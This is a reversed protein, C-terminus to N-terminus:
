ALAICRLDKIIPVVAANRSRMRLKIQYQTFQKGSLDKQYSYDVFDFENKSGSYNVATLEDWSQDGPNTEDGTLLKVYVDIDTESSNYAAFDIRLSTCENAVTILKTIYNAGNFDQKPSEGIIYNSDDNFFFQKGFTGDFDTVRNGTTVISMRDQDIVPSLNDSTSSLTFQLQGSQAGVMQREENIASAIVRPTNYYNHENLAVPSFASDRKYSRQTPVSGSAPTSFASTGISSGSTSKFTADIATGPLERYGILPMMSHYAINKSGYVNAGGFTTNTTALTRTLSSLDIQYSDLTIYELQNHIKNIETLPIGNVVYHEAQWGSDKKFGSSPATGEVLGITTITYQNNAETSIGTLPNYSYVCDGIKVYAPNSNSPLKGDIPNTFTVTTSSTVSSTNITDPAITITTGSKNTVRCNSAFISGASTVVDGIEIGTDDTVVISSSGTAIPNTTGDVTRDITNYKFDTYSGSLTIASGAVGNYDADLNAYKESSVGKLQVYSASDYMGHNKHYVKMRGSNVTLEIPDRRLKNYFLNGSTDVNMTISPTENIDFKARYIKFKMDQMEATTWTSANQSKFLVGAYPQKSIREGTLDDKGMESLWVKYEVSSTLLAFCYEKRELLYVPTEFVFTTATLADDSINVNSPDLNVTGLITPSPYGNVMERIQMTVPLATDKTNFFVDIKSIFCGGSEEILFSQALPDYWGGARSQTSSTTITRKDSVTEHVVEANRVLLVDSQKTLITGNASYAGEASSDADGPVLSNTPSDTLRVISEGTKWRPNSDDTPDPIFISARLNGKDDAILHKKTVTATAGSTVGAIVDGELLYGGRNAGGLKQMTAINLNLFTSTTSYATATIENGTYPDISYPKNLKAIGGQPNGLNCKFKRNVNGTVEIPEGNQFAVSGATMSIEIIKPTTYASIDKGDLFPYVRINPKLRYGTISFNRSRKFHAYKTDVVRDGLVKRDVRPTVYARVGDRTQNATTTTTTTTKWRIYPHQARREKKRTSSTSTSTWQNEWSNWETPGFGTNPDIGLEYAVAAYDGDVETLSEPLRNEEIWDDSAPFVNMLGVWSVVAFPNVNELVCAYQQEVLLEDTYNLMLLDGKMYNTPETDFVLTSNTSYHQPRLEGMSTDMSCKYNPERPEGINHSSFNDVLFGNKLRNNGSGDAIFLNKTDTELLSLQTYYEINQIRNELGGIDKMTYRRQYHRRIKVDNLDRIYPPMDISLVKMANALADSPAEPFLSPIGEKSIFKGNKDLYLEDRRALYYEVDGDTTGSPLLYKGTQRFATNAFEGSATTLTTGSTLASMTYPTTVEGNGTLKSTADIRWDILDSLYCKEGDFEYSPIDDYDADYFSEVSAFVGDNNETKFHDFIVVLKSTVSIDSDTSVKVLKSYNFAQDRQGDDLTYRDKINPLGHSDILNISREASSAYGFLTENAIFNTTSLYVFYLTNGSQKIIRGKSGSTRGVIVEGVQFSTTASSSQLTIKPVVNISAASGTPDNYIAHIKSVKTTGLSLITNNLPTTATDIIDLCRMKKHSILHQTPTDIKQPGILTFAQGIYNTNGWSLKVTGSSIRLSTVTIASTVGNVFLTYDSASDSFYNGTIEIIAHTNLFPGDDGSQATVTGTEFTQVSQVKTDSLTKITRGQSVKFFLPKPTGQLKNITYDTGGSVTDSTWNITGGLNVKGDILDAITNTGIFSINVLRVLNTTTALTYEAAVLIAYGIVTGGSNKLAVKTAGTLNNAIEGQAIFGSNPASLVFESGRGDTPITSNNILEVTRPKNIDVYTTELNELEYGRVYSKGPSVAINFIDKTPTNGDDTTTNVEFVGNNIGNNLCEDKTFDYARVEYDGSEDYTRRALIDEISSTERDVVINKTYGEDLRLLEIFDTASEDTLSKKSLIAKLKLRHAGPASYNSYGQSPDTLTTDEEPTVIEELIQLGVKYSPTTSFQDLVIEQELVKVFHGKAFYVGETIKASSGVYSASQSVCKAFDTNAQIVTTGISFSDQALIIEDDAFTGSTNATGASIYKVYLTTKSKESQESTLANVVKAKVGTTNGIITQGVIYPTTSGSPTAVLANSPIGFYEEEILIASYQLDFGVQGPIIQDGEKYISKGFKEIQDQLISQSQTLERAQLPYGPRFLVRHFNKDPDFDEFYPPTNLDTSQPM